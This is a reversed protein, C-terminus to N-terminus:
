RPLDGAFHFALSSLISSALFCFDLLPVRTSSLRWGPCPSSCKWNRGPSVPAWVLREHTGVPLWWGFPVSQCNTSQSLESSARFAVAHCDGIEHCYLIVADDAFVNVLADVVVFIVYRQSPRGDKRWKQRKDKTIIHAVTMSRKGVHSFCKTESLHKAWLWGTLKWKLHGQKRKWHRHLSEMITRGFSSRVSKKWSSRSPRGYQVMIKTMQSTTSSDM